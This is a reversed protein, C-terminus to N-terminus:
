ERADRKARVRIMEILDGQAFQVDAVHTGM